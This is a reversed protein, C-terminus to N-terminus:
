NTLLRSRENESEISRFTVSFSVCAKSKNKVWHPVTVPIYIGTNNKLKVQQFSSLSKESLDLKYEYENAYFDKLNEKTIVPHKIPDNIYIEKDGHIHLLFNHEPDIHPSVVANPSSIFLFCMPQLMEIGSLFGSEKTSQLLQMMLNKYEKIQELNRLIIWIDSDYISDFLEIAHNGSHFISDKTAEVSDPTLEKAVNALYSIEFLESDALNHEVEFPEAPFKSKNEPNIIITGSNM